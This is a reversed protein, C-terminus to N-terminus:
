RGDEPDVDLGEIAELFWKNFLHPNKEILGLASEDLIYFVAEDDKSRVARGYAQQLQIAAHRNYWNWENREQVRYKTRKDGMHRYLTKALVQWRCKDGDLDVGEDMAVSFFVQKDSKLWDDLSEEREYSDQVMVNENVWSRDGNSAM